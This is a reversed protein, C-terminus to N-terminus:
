PEPGCVADAVWLRAQTLWYDLGDFVRWFFRQPLRDAVVISAGLPARSHAPVTMDAALV